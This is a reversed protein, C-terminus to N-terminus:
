DRYIPFRDTLARVESRVAERVSADEPADLVKLIMGGIAGAEAERMGRTTIAPTGIRIGSTVFPSATDFPVTNKNTTIGAAELAEEAQKGTLDHPCTAIPAAPSSACSAAPWCRPWPARM